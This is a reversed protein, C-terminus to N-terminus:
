KGLIKSWLAPKGSVSKKPLEVKDLKLKFKKMYASYNFLAEILLADEFKEHHEFFENRSIIKGGTYGGLHRVENYFNTVPIVRNFGDVKNHVWLKQPTKAIALSYPTEPLHIERVKGNAFLRDGSKWNSLTWYSRERQPTTILLDDTYVGNPAFDIEFCEDDEEHISISVDYTEFAIFAITFVVSPPFSTDAEKTTPGVIISYDGFRSQGLVQKSFINELVSSYVEKKKGLAFSICLKEFESLPRPFTVEAM